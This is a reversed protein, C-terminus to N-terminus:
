AGAGARAALLSLVGCGAGLDLVTAEPRAALARRIGTEYFENRQVDNMM